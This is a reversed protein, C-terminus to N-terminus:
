AGAVSKKGPALVQVTEGDAISDPPNVIVREDGKLGHVIQVTDGYDKGVSVEILQARTGNVVTAVQLHDGRFLLTNAPLIFGGGATPLQFHVQTYAGPFLRHQANDVDVEVRLTRSAPDIAGATRAVTGAFRQGPREPFALSAPRGVRIDAVDAEPVDVFVRLRDSQMIHFLETGHGGGVTGTGNAVLDGVDVNRATIIGAFPARISAYDQLQQLERVKAEASRLIARDADAAGQKDDYDQQSVARAQLQLKWRAATSRALTANARATAADARAQALQQDVDPTDLVALLQGRRVHDGIDVRWQRVYGTTRAYIPADAEAQVDGPLVLDQEADAPTPATVAVRPAADADTTRALRQEAHLRQVIGWGAALVVILLILWPLLGGRQRHVSTHNM